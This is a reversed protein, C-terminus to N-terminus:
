GGNIKQLWERMANTVAEPQEMPSMHGSDEIIVVPPHDPLARSLAEHQAPPSWTDQRGCLLLSGAPANAMFPTADPRGLLAQVQNAFTAPTYSEVMAHIAQILAKDTHRAPHVMPPTWTEAVAAMGRNSALDLLIQRKAPEGPAPPHLGTDLLGLGLIRQPARDLIQLAVRGGMSHGALIFQPPADTLVADAMASLSRYHRFDPIRIEVLDALHQRQHAWVRADCLLGPLLYLTQTM